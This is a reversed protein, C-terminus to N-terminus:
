RERSRPPLCASGSACRGRCEDFTRLDLLALEGEAAGEAGVVALPGARELPQQRRAERRSQVLEVAREGWAVAFM